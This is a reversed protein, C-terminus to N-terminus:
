ILTRCFFVIFNFFLSNNMCVSSACKIYVYMCVKSASVAPKPELKKTSPNREREQAETTLQKSRTGTNTGHKQKNTMKQQDSEWEEVSRPKFGQHKPDVGRRASKSVAAHTTPRLGTDSLTVSRPSELKLRQTEVEQQLQDKRGSFTGVGLQPTKESIDRTPRQALPTTSTLRASEPTSVLPSQSPSPCPVRSTSKQHIFNGVIVEIMTQLPRKREQLACLLMTRYTCRSVERFLLGRGVWLAVTAHM